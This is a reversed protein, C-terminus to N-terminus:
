RAPGTVPVDLHTTVPFDTAQRVRIGRRSRVRRPVSVDVIRPATYPWFGHLVAASIHSVAAEDGIAVAAAYLRGEQSLEGNGYVYVGRHERRLRGRAAWRTITPQSIGFA